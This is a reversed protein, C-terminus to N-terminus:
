LPKRMTGKRKEVGKNVTKLRMKILVEGNIKM